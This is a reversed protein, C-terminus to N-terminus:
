LRATRHALPPRGGLRRPRLPQAAPRPRIRDAPAPGSAVPLRRLVLGREGLDFVPKPQRYFEDRGNYYVDNYYFFLCVIAPAYRAGETTYFLLEQDTSYASTGGNVVDWSGGDARLRRELVQTVTEALPVTYGEVFSDGLALVRRTGPPAVYPREPDRLGHANIAVEVTYEDRHYTARASPRKRWGLMPDFETYLSTEVPGTTRARRSREFRLVSELVVLVLSVAGVVLLARALRERRM